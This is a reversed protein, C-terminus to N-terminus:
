DICFRIPWSRSERMTAVQARRTAATVYAHLPPPLSATVSGGGGGGGGATSLLATPMMAPALWVSVM